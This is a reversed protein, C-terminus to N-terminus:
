IIFIPIDIMTIDNTGELVSKQQILALSMVSDSIRIIIQM